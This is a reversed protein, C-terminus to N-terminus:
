NEIKLGLHILKTILDQYNLGSAEWLKTYMSHPTFGPITNIENIHITGDPDLLFDVRAFGQCGALGYIDKALMQIEELKEEPLDAPLEYQTKGDHYKDSYDYFEAAPKVRGPVSVEITEHDNGLVAVEIEQCDEVSEELVIRHDHEKAKELAQPLEHVEKVKTIGISSGTRSPKVFVPFSLEEPVKAVIDEVRKPHHHNHDIHAFRPQSVKHVDMLQNFTIKDLCLASAHVGCGVYPIGLSEFLGQITGDEGGIGHLVPFAIDIMSPLDSLSIEFAGDKQILIPVVEFRDQDINEFVGKASVLSVEHESSRGGYFIGVRIRNM